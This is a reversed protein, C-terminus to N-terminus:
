EAVHLPSGAPLDNVKTMSAHRQRMGVFLIAGAAAFRKKWRRSCPSAEDNREECIVAAGLAQDGSASRDSSAELDTYGPPMM